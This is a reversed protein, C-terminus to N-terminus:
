ESAPSYPKEVRVIRIRTTTHLWEVVAFPKRDKDMYLEQSYHRSAAKAAERGGPREAAPVLSEDYGFAQLDSGIGDILKISIAFPPREPLGPTQDLVTVFERISAAAPRGDGIRNVTFGVAAIAGVFHETCGATGTEISLCTERTRDTSRYVALQTGEYPAPFSVRMTISYKPTSFEFVADPPTGAEVTWGHFLLLAGMSFFRLEASM